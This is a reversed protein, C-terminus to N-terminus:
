EEEEEQEESWHLVISYADFDPDSTTLPGEITMSEIRTDNENVGVFYLLGKKVASFPTGLPFSADKKIVTSNIL